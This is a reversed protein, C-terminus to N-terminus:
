PCKSSELYKEEKQRELNQDNTVVNCYVDEPLPEAFSHTHAVSHKQDCSYSTM